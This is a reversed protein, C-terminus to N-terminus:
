LYAKLNNRVHTNRTDNTLFLLGRTANQVKTEVSLYRFADAGHSTWDHFPRSKFEKRIADWEKHYNKLADLGRKCKDEDFWCVPLLMRAANIGDEVALNATIKIPRIGLSLAVEKRSKGTGLERAEADHPLYHCDYVYPKQQLIHAYFQLGEGSGEEYDIVHVENGIVQVFWIATSDGIGLDWFTNVKMSPNYPVKGIRKDEEAKQLEKTYYSGVVGAEFSCFYEQQIMEDSMGSAREEDIVSPDIAKTDDVTLKQCFWDENNRAMEYLDYGHNKGRPTYNFVAWGGNEALIPRIFDWAQPDQLSYESFVCGVPNTGVISDINDTGIVQFLSGNKTKIKMETDNKNEIVEPPFHDLFRFGDKDMGDWLIKKGQSYTPFFYFYSGVREFMRKITFNLLTKDKGSRRHWMLVSRKKGEDMAVLFPTQYERPEFKYPITIKEM